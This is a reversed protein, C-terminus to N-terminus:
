PSIRMGNPFLMDYYERDGINGNYCGQRLLECHRGVNTHKSIIVGQGITSGLGIICNTDIQSLSLITVHSKIISHSGIFVNSHIISGLGIFVDKNIITNKGIIVGPQIKATDSVSAYKSILSELNFGKSTLELIVNIRPFNIAHSDIAVACSFTSADFEDLFSLDYQFDNTSQVEILHYRKNGNCIDKAIDFSDGRGIVITGAKM